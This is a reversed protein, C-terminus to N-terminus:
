RQHETDKVDNTANHRCVLNAITSRSVNFQVALQRHCCEMKPVLKVMKPVLTVMKSVLKVMIPVLKVMKPVLKVMKPVLKVMKSVLKVMKPVLADSLTVFTVM